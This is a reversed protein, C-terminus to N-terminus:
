MPCPRHEKRQEDTRRIVGYYADHAEPGLESTDVHVRLIAPNGAMLSRVVLAVDTPDDAPEPWVKLVVGKYRVKM